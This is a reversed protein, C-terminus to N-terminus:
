FVQSGVVSRYVDMNWRADGLATHVADNPFREAIAKTSLPATAGWAGACFSGLDLMRHSWSPAFGVDRLWPGLFGADFQVAAGLLTAGDLAEAITRAASWAPEITYDLARQSDGEGIVSPNTMDHVFPMLREGDSAVPPYGYRDYFGGIQLATPDANYLACCGVQYHLVPKSADLPVIGIEWLEHREPDLGTTELDLSVIKKM